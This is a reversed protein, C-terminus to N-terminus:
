IKNTVENKSQPTMAASGKKGSDIALIAMSVVTM